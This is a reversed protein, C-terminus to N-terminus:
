GPAFPDRPFGVDAGGSDTTTPGSVGSSGLDDLSRGAISEAWHRLTEPDGQLPEPVPWRQAQDDRGTLLTRGNPSFAVASVAAGHRFPPGLPLGTAADWLRATGDESGTAVMRGDPSFVCALIPALHRMARGSPRGNSADHLRVELADAQRALITRGDPSFAVTDIPKLSPFDTPLPRGTAADWLRLDQSATVVFRGDPSFAADHVASAHELPTGILRGTRASWIRAEGRPAEPEASLAMLREGDPSFMVGTVAHTMTLPPDIRSGDALKWRRVLRDDGGTALFQGDPSIALCLVLGGHRLPPRASDGRELDLLVVHDDIEVAALRGDATFAPPAIGTNGPARPRRFAIPRGLPEGRTASWLRYECDWRQAAPDWEGGGTVIVAGNPSARVFHIPGPDVLPRAAPSGKSRRAEIQRAWGALSTRVARALGPESAPVYELSRALWLLGSEGRDSDALSQGRDYSLISALRRTEELASEARRNAAELENQEIRLRRNAAELRERAQGRTLALTIALTMTTALALGALVGLFTPLPNRRSWMALRAARSVPRAEIPEGALFRDLDDALTAATSYRRSPSKELCKLCIVELDRPVRPNLRRPLEPPQSRVRHLVEIVSDGRFPAKGTLLAYLIAGLGYVDTAVTIEARRGAAQEPPMYGPTGLIAGTQTLASADASNEELRRALGFDAVTPQGAADLLINAPKLDRHLVGHEHAYQIARAVTAVLAAARSPDHAFEDLRAGVSGGEMLKMSYYHFPEHRGVEYIPVIGPHELAAVAEAENQFRALERPSALQGGLIVKLAVQRGLSIQRARYVVGMGGHGLEGLVDYDGFHRLVGGLAPRVPSYTASSELLMTGSEDGAGAIITSDLPLLSRTEDRSAPAEAPPTTSPEPAERRLSMTPM